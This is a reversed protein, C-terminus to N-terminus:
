VENKWNEIKFTNNEISVYYLIDFGEQHSPLELKRYTALMGVKPVQAKGTRQQNRQLCEDLSSQFYYGIIKYKNIKGLEIYKQREQRTPNTNDIVMKQHVSFAASLFINEKNRTNLLDLSLRLHTNFFHEKYFTSKGSAQLGTFIILEM